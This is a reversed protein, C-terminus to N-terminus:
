DAVLVGANSRRTGWAYDNSQHDLLEGIPNSSKDTGCQSCYIRGCETKEAEELTHGKLFDTVDKEEFFLRHVSYGGELAAAASLASANRGPEDQDGIIILTQFPYLQLMRPLRAINGAGNTMTAVPLNDQMLRVADLEGEVIYIFTDGREACQEIWPQPYLIPQNCGRKRKYKPIERDRYEDVFVGYYDDRRYRLTALTGGAGFIPIVFASGNHGIHAARIGAETLGRAYLWELRPKRVTWLLEEYVGVDAPNLPSPAKYQKPQM